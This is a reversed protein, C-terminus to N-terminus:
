SDTENYYIQVLSLLQNKGQQVMSFLMRTLRLVLLPPQFM